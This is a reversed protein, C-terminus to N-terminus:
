FEEFFNLLKFITESLNVFVCCSTMIKEGKLGRIGIVMKLKDANNFFKYFLDLTQAQFGFSVAPLYFLYLATDLFVFVTDLHM